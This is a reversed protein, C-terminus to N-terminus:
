PYVMRYFVAGNAPNITMNTSNVLDSGPLTVWNTNLGTSLSNTQIQLHWGTHDAPWNLTLQNGNVVATINTPNTNVTAIVTLRGNIALSNSWGLGSTLSPLNTVAFAGRNTVSTFLTFTDGAVLTGGINNVTLTGGFINTTAALRDCNPTAGRNIEMITTGGLTVTTGANAVTLTGLIGISAGPSLISGSLTTLNGRIVGNGKLTQGSLLSWTAGSRATVDLVGGLQVDITPSNSLGASGALALNGNTAIIVSGSITNAPNNLIVQGGVANTGAAVASVTVNGTGILPSDLVLNKTAFVTQLAGGSAAITVTSNTLHQVGDQAKVIGGNVTISNTVFHNVVAGSNGGFRLEATSNVTVPGTGLARDNQNGGSDSGVNLVGNSLITGGTYSNAGNTLILTGTGTKILTGVGGITGNGGLIYNTVSNVTIAGPLLTGSLFV